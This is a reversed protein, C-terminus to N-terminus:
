DNLIQVTTSIMLRQHLFLFITIVNTIQSQKKYCWLRRIIEKQNIPNTLVNMHM